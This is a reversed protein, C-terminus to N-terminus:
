LGTPVFQLASSCQSWLLLIRVQLSLEIDTGNSPYIVENANNRGFDTGPGDGRLYGTHTTFCTSANRTDLSVAQAGIFLSSLAVISTSLM